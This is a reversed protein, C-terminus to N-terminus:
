YLKRIPDEVMAVKARLYDDNVDISFSNGELEHSYVQMDNEIARLLEIDEITELYSKKLKSYKKLGESTFSIVSVHKHVVSVESKFRYPSMGRTLFMVRGSNSSIVRVTNDNSNYSVKITPIIIEPKSQHNYHIDILIDIYDPKILPEDGQVDIILSDEFRESVSAIRETGNTFHSETLITNISYKQCISIIEQSDTCVYVEDVKNALLARKATHVIIPLGDIELLAKGPLRKSELRSPILAINKKM